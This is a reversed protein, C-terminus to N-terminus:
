HLCTPIAKALMMQIDPWMFENDTDESYTRPKKAGLVRDVALFRLKVELMQERYVLHPVKTM